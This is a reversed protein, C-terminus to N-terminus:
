RGSVARQPEHEDEASHSCVCLVVSEVKWSKFQFKPPKINIKTRKVGWELCFSACCIPFVYIGSVFRFSEMRFLCAKSGIQHDGFQNSMSKPFVAMLFDSGDCLCRVLFHLLFCLHQKDNLTSQNVNMERKGLLMLPRGSLGANELHLVTLSSSIRLARAVFPASHDLLPTNRADLYQLSSTQM